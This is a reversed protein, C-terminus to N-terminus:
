RRRRKGDGTVVALALLAAIGGVIYPAWRQTRYQQQASEILAGSGATTDVEARSSVWAATGAAGAGAIALALVPLVFPVGYGGAGVPLARNHRVYGYRGIM